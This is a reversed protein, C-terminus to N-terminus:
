SAATLGSHASSELRDCLQKKSVFSFIDKNNFEIIARITWHKNQSLRLLRNWPMSSFAGTLYVTYQPRMLTAAVEWAMAKM